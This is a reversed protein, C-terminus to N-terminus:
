LETRLQRVREIDLGTNKSVIEDSFGDSLFNRAIEISMEERGESYRAMGYEATMSM